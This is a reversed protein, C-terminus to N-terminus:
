PTTFRVQTVGYGAGIRDRRSRKLDPVYKAGGTRRTCIGVLFPLLVRGIPVPYRGKLVLGQLPRDQHHQFRDVLLAKIVERVAEARIPRCM